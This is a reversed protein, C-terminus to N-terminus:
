KWCIRFAVGCHSSFMTSRKLRPSMAAQCARTEAMAPWALWSMALWASAMPCFVKSKTTLKKTISYRSYKRTRSPM